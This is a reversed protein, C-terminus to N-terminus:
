KPIELPLVSEDLLPRAERILANTAQQASYELHIEMGNWGCSCVVQGETAIREDSGRCQGTLFSCILGEHGCRRRLILSTFFVVAM